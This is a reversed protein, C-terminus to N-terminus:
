DDENNIQNALYEDAKRRAKLVDYECQEVDLMQVDKAVMPREPLNPFYIAVMEGDRIHDRVYCSVEDSYLLRRNEEM